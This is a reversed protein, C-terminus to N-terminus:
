WLIDCLIIWKSIGIFDNGELEDSDASVDSAEDCQDITVAKSCEEYVVHPYEESLSDEWQM